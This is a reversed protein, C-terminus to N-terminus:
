GDKLTRVWVIPRLRINQFFINSHATGVYVQDQDMNGYALWKGAQLNKSNLVTLTKTDLPKKCALAHMVLTLYTDLDNIVDFGEALYKFLWGEAMKLNDGTINPDAAEDPFGEAIGVRWEKSFESQGGNWLDANGLDPVTIRSPYSSSKSNLEIARIKSPASTPPILLLMPERMKAIKDLIEPTLGPKIQEWSPAQGAPRDEFPPSNKRFVKLSLHYQYKLDNLLSEKQEASLNYEPETRGPTRYVSEWTSRQLDDIEPTRGTEAPGRRRKIKEKMRDLFEM